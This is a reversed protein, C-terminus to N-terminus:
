YDRFQLISTTKIKNSNKIMDYATGYDKQGINMKLKSGFESSSAQKLNAIYDPNTYLTHPKNDKIFVNQKLFKEILEQNNDLQKTFVENICPKKTSIRNSNVEEIYTIFDWDIIQHMHKVQKNINVPVYMYNKFKPLGGQDEGNHGTFEVPNVNFDFVSNNKRMKPKIQFIDRMLIKMFSEIRYWDKIYVPRDFTRTTYEYGTNSRLQHTYFKVDPVFGISVPSLIGFIRLNSYDIPVADEDKYRQEESSCKIKNKPIFVTLFTKVRTEGSANRVRCFQNTLSTPVRNSHYEFKQNLCDKQKNRNKRDYTYSAWKSSFIQFVSLSRTQNFGRTM